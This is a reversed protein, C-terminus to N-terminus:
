KIAAIGAVDDAAVTIKVTVKNGNVSYEIGNDNLIDFFNYDEANELTFTVNEIAKGSNNLVTFIVTSEDDSAFRNVFVEDNDTYLLPTKNKGMFVDEFAEVAKM